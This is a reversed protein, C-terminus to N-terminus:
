TPVVKYLLHHNQIGAERDKRIQHDRATNAKKKTPFVTFGKPALYLIKKDDDYTLPKNNINLILCEVNQPWPITDHNVQTDNAAIMRRRFVFHREGAELNKDCIKPCVPFRRKAKSSLHQGYFSIQSPNM